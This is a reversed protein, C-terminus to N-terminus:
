RRRAPRSRAARAQRVAHARHEVARRAAAAARGSAAPAPCRRAVGLHVADEVAADAHHEDDGLAVGRARGLVQACGALGDMPDARDLAARLTRGRRDHGGSRGSTPRLTGSPRGRQRERPGDSRDVAQREVPRAVPAHQAAAELRLGNREQVARNLRAQANAVALQNYDQRAWYSDSLRSRGAFTGIREGELPEKGADLRATAAQLERETDQIEVTLENLRRTREDASRLLAEQAPSPTFGGGAPASVPAPPAITGDLRAGPVPQDSYVVRGEPTVYRYAMQATATAAFFAVALAAIRM